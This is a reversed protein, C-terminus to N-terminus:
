HTGQRGLSALLNYELPLPRPPRGVKVVLPTTDWRTHLDVRDEGDLRFIGDSSLSAPCIRGLEASLRVDGGEILAFTSDAYHPELHGAVAKFFTADRGADSQLCVALRALPYIAPLRERARNSGSLGKGLPQDSWGFPDTGNYIAVLLRLAEVFPLRRAVAMGVPILLEELGRQKLVNWGEELLGRATNGGLMDDHAAFLLERVITGYKHHKEAERCTRLFILRAIRNLDAWTDPPALGQVASCLSYLDPLDELILTDGATPGQPQDRGHYRHDRGHYYSQLDWRTRPCTKLQSYAGPQPTPFDRRRTGWGGSSGCPNPVHVSQQVSSLTRSPFLEEVDDGTPPDDKRVLSLLLEDERKSWRGRKGRHEAACRSYGVGGAGATDDNGQASPPASLLKVICTAVTSAFTYIDGQPLAGHASPRSTADLATCAPAHTRQRKLSGGAPRCDDESAEGDQDGKDDTYDDDDDEDEEAGDERRQRRKPHLGRQIRPGRRAPDGRPRPPKATPWAASGSAGKTLPERTLPVEVVVRPSSPKRPPPPPAPSPEPEPKIFCDDYGDDVMPSPTRPVDVREAPPMAVISTARREPYNGAERRDSGAATLPSAPTSPCGSGCSANSSRGDLTPAMPSEPIVAGEVDRANAAPLADLRSAKDPGDSPGASPEREAPAEALSDFGTLDLSEIESGAALALDFPNQPMEPQQPRGQGAASASPVHASPSAAVVGPRPPLPHQLDSPPPLPTQLPASPAPPTPLPFALAPKRRSPPIFPISPTYVAMDDLNIKPVM